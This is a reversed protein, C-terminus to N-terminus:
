EKKLDFADAFERVGASVNAHILTAVAVLQRRYTLALRQMFAGDPDWASDFTFGGTQAKLWGRRVLGQAIKKASAPQVYLHQALQEETWVADPRGWVILLAEVQPVSDIKEVIFQRIDPALEEPPCM